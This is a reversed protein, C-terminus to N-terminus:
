HLGLIALAQPVRQLFLLPRLIEVDVSGMVQSFADHRVSYSLNFVFTLIKTSL